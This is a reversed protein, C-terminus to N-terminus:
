YNLLNYINIESFFCVSNPDEFINIGNKLIFVYSNLITEILNEFSDNYLNELEIKCNNNNSFYSNILTILKKKNEERIKENKNSKDYCLNYPLIKKLEFFIENYFFNLCKTDKFLFKIMLNNIM